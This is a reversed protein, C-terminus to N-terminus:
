NRMNKWDLRQKSKESLQEGEKETCLLKLISVEKDNQLSPWACLVWKLGKYEKCDRQIAENGFYHNLLCLWDRTFKTTRIDKDWPSEKITCKSIVRIKQKNWVNDIFTFIVPKQWKDKNRWLCFM